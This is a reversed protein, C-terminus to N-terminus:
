RHSLEREESRLVCVSVKSSRERFARCAPTRYPLHPAAQKVSDDARKVLSFARHCAAYRTRRHAGSCAVLAVKAIARLKSDAPLVDNVIHSLKLFCARLSSPSISIFSAKRDRRHLPKSEVVSPDRASCPADCVEMSTLPRRFRKLSTCAEISPSTMPLSTRCCVIARCLSM